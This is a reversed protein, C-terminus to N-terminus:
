LGICAVSKPGLDSSKLYCQRSCWATLSVPPCLRNEPIRLKVGFHCFMIAETLRRDLCLFRQPNHRVDTFDSM